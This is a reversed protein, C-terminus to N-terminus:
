FVTHTVILWTLPSMFLSPRPPVEFSSPLTAEFCGSASTRDDLDARCAGSHGIMLKAGGPRREASTEPELIADVHDRFVSSLVLAVHPHNQGGRICDTGTSCALARESVGPPECVGLVLIRLVPSM